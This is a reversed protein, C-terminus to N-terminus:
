RVVPCRFGALLKPDFPDHAANAVLTFAAAELSLRHSGPAGGPETAGRDLLHFIAWPGRTRILPKSDKATDLHLSAEDAGGAAPPWTLSVPDGGISAGGVTLMAKGGGSAPPDAQLTFSVLPAGGAPFFAARIAAAHEFSALAASTIPPAVGGVPKPRWGAQSIVTYPQVNSQVYTDFAGGPGFLRAFDAISIDTSADPDFPYHGDVLSHCLPGPGDPAAFSSAAASRAASGLATTGSAAIQRLWRSVPAPQRDAEALLKAAPDGSSQLAAPVSPAAPDGAALETDLANILRLINDFLTGGTAGASGVTLDLLARYHREFSSVAPPAPAADAVGVVSLGGKPKDGAPLTLARAIAALMDRLPSQPSSLVYLEQVARDRSGFSALALDGLTADWAAEADTVWLSVVAEELSTVAPGDTPIKSEQGLVWSEGAVTRATAPLGRLLAEYGAATLFGAVGESTPRGSLNAFPRVGAPGLIALPSWDPIAAEARIRGYIRAAPSVRSFTARATAVLGGDLEVPPLASALLADLHAALHTRLDANLTGPYLAMWDAGIWSRVLAPDLPGEGGLMLYVRTAQYLTDPDTMHARMQAELRWILRPLLIHQLARRYALRGGQALKGAQTLGPLRPAREDVPLRAAADLVPAVQPLDDSAVPDLQMNDLRQRYAALAEDARSIFARNAQDSQWIALGATVSVVGIAAFGTARVIRRRRAQRPSTSVLLAEGLIVERLLRSVFYSRGGGPRTGAARKQDIGFSRALMGVLRDVPAGDQTASTFYAGRLFPAPDLRSGSFAQTMFATLTQELSAVQLPFGGILARREASREAQLREVLREGLRDLLLRFEAAFAEVGSTLPFTAGWVQARTTADLDNFYADFGHLRDAKSFVVYVPVRLKLRETIEDIRRRIAKAHATREADEASAIDVLSLVVLVGNIPQRPRVRRLLDLFGEWGARDIAADSDQTTYRGATDILVAEEAFWWDCLRTGGVGGISAEDDRALPFHLGSNILATTKGSGPPGIMVFWPQEYLRQRGRRKLRDLANRMRGAVAAVEAKAEAAIEKPDRGGQGAIGAALLTERRRRRWSLLGNVGVVLALVAVIAVIRPLPARLAPVLPFLYWIMMSAVAAGALGSTWRSTLRTMLWPLSDM